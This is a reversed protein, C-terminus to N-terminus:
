STHLVPNLLTPGKGTSISYYCLEGQNLSLCIQLAFSGVMPKKKKKGRWNKTISFESFFEM